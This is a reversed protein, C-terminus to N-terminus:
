YNELVTNQWRGWAEHQVNLKLMWEHLKEQQFFPHTEVQNVAPAIENFTTLDAMREASFNSIGIARIKGGKYLDELAHYAAYYDGLPQHILMLDIYDTQLKRMSEVVSAFTKEYSHETVWVKTTIFLESRDVGSRAIGRGVAEENYYAQATDILRYGVEIADVVCQECETDPIQFVGYGIIPMEVGNNLIVTKM